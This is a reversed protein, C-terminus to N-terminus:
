RFLDLAASRVRESDRTVAQLGGGRPAKASRIAQALLELAGIRERSMGEPISEVVPPVGPSDMLDVQVM